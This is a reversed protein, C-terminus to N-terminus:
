YKVKVSGNRLFTIDVEHKGYDFEINRRHLKVRPNGPPLTFLVTVPQGTVPHLLTVQHTGACPRFVAAFEPLTLPRLVPQPEQVPAPVPPVVRPPGIELPLGAPPQVEPLVPMPAVPQRPLGIRIQVYRGNYIIDAWGAPSLVLLALLSALIARRM